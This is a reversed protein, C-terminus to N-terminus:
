AWFNVNPHEVRQEAVGMDVVTCARVCARVCGGLWGVVCGAFGGWWRVVCRGDDADDATHRIFHIASTFRIAVQLQGDQGRLLTHRKRHLVQGCLQLHDELWLMSQDLERDGSRLLSRDRVHVRRQLAIRHRPM